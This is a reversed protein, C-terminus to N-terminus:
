SSGLDGQSLNAGYLDLEVEPSEDLWTNWAEARQKLFALQESRAV